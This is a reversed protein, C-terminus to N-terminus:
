DGGDTDSDRHDLRRFLDMLLDEARGYKMSDVWLWYRTPQRSRGRPRRSSEAVYAPIGADTLAFLVEALNDATLDAIQAWATAPLGNGFGGPPLWFMRARGVSSWDSSSFSSSM